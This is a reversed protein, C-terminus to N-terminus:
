KVEARLVRWLGFAMPLAIWVLSTVGLQAWHEGSMEGEFLYGQAFNFDVWSQAKAFWEQNTALLFSLPPLVFSVVFYGVIAGASNRLLMGLMFGLMMGLVNALIIYLLNDLGLDWTTDVGALASGVVNGVAGIGFALVVSVVGIAVAVLGKALITRGRHPVLTFTTLGSRQSWESTVSLVAIVPLVVVMPFGIAAAFSDYTLADDPAFLIVAGTAIVATAAISVMLWFGAQTDFMKVLEVKLLRTLPIPRPAPREQRVATPAGDTAAPTLTTTTM